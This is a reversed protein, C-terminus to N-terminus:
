NGRLSELWTNTDLVDAWAKTGKEVMLNFETEDYSPRYDVFELLQYNKLEGTTLNEEATVHIVIEKYIRNETEAKLLNQTASVTISTGDQLAVHVNPKNKGGMDIVTGHLYKEVQVWIDDTRNFSSNSDVRFSIGTKNDTVFYNRNKNKASRKQWEEIIEARKPDILSLSTNSNLRAIDAQVTSAILLGVAISLSGKEISVIGTKSDFENNSGKLFDSVDKSFEGLLALTVHSPSVDINEIRDNVSFQLQGQQNM